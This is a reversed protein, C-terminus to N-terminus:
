LNNGSSELDAHVISIGERLEAEVKPSARKGRMQEYVKLVHKLAEDAKKMGSNETDDDIAKEAMKVGAIITGEFAQWAPKKAYIRNLIFLVVTATMVIGPGSQLFAWLMVLLEKM